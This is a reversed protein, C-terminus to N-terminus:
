THTLMDCHICCLQNGYRSVAKAFQVSQERGGISEMSYARFPSICGALLLVAFGCSHINACGRSTPNLDSSDPTVQHLCSHHSSGSCRLHHSRTIEIWCEGSVSGEAKLGYGFCLKSLCCPYRTRKQCTLGCALHLHPPQPKLLDFCNTAPASRVLGSSIANASNKQM